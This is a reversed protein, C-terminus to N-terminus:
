FDSSWGFFRGIVRTHIQSWHHELELDVKPQQPFSSDCIHDTSTCSASFLVDCAAGVVASVLDKPLNQGSDLVFWLSSQFYRAIGPLGFLRISLSDRESLLQAQPGFKSPWCGLLCVLLCAFLCALWCALLNFLVLWCRRRCRRHRRGRELFSQLVCSALM